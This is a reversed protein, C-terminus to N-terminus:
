SRFCPSITKASLLVKVDPARESFGLAQDAQLRQRLRDPLRHNVLEGLEGASARRFEETQLTFIEEFQDLVLVPTQIRDGRWFVATKFFEWLGGSDGATYDIKDAECAQEIAGIFAQM